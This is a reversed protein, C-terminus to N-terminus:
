YKKLEDLIRMKAEGVLNEVYERGASAQSACAGFGVLLLSISGFDVPVEGDGARSFVYAGFAGKNNQTCKSGAVKMHLRFELSSPMLRIPAGFAVGDLVRAQLEKRSLGTKDQIQEDSFEEFGEDELSAAVIHSLTKPSIASKSLNPSLPARQLDFDVIAFHNRVGSESLKRFYSEFARTPSEIRLRWNGHRTLKPIAGLMGDVVSFYEIASTGSASTAPSTRAYGHSVMATGPKSTGYQVNFGFEHAAVAMLAPPFTTDIVRSADGNSGKCERAQRLYGEVKPAYRESFGAYFDAVLDLSTPRYCTLSGHGSIRVSFCKFDKLSSIPPRVAFCANIDGVALSHKITKEILGKAEGCSDAPSRVVQLVQAIDNCADLLNLRVEQASAIGSVVILVITAVTKPLSASLPPYIIKTFTIWHNRM